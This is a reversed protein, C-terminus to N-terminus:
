FKEMVILIERPWTTSDTNSELPLIAVKYSSSISGNSGVNISVM